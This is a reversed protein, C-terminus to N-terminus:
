LGEALCRDIHVNVEANSCGTLRECCVPCCQQKSSSKLVVPFMTRIDRESRDVSFSTFLFDPLLQATTCSSFFSLGATPQQSLTAAEGKGSAGKQIQRLRQQALKGEPGGLGALVM